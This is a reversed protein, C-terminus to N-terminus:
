CPRGTKQSALQHLHAEVGMVIAGWDYRSEALRRARQGLAAARPRDTLLVLVSAAMGAPDDALLLHEEHVVDLGQAGISTSVVPCGMALAEITKLKTGGGMRSPVVFVAAQRYYERVDAVGGTVQVGPIQSLKRVEAGPNRGVVWFEAQPVQARVLPFVQRAFWRAADQNMAADMSGIFVLRPPSGAPPGGGPQFYETDVGNPALWLTGADPLYDATRRMDQPSVSLVMDFRPLWTRQLRIIKARQLTAFAKRWLSRSAAMHREWVMEDLNHQDL